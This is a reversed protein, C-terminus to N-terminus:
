IIRPVNFHNGFPDRYVGNVSLGPSAVKDDIDKSKSSSERAGIRAQIALVQRLLSDIKIQQLKASTVESSYQSKRVSTDKKEDELFPLDYKKKYKSMEDVLKAENDLSQKLLSELLNRVSEVRMSKTSKHLKEYEKQAVDAILKAGQASRSTSSITFSPRTTGASVGITYSVASGVSVPVGDRMFPALIIAKSKPDDNINQIVRDRLDQSNLGELHKSVLSLLQTDRDVKQLNLVAPPPVLRFSSSSQFFETDQFKVYVYGLSVPLSLALSLLWRDRIILLFDSIGRTKPKKSSTNYASNDFEEEM